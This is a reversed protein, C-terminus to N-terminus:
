IGEGERFFFAGASAGVGLAIGLIVAAAFGFRRKMWAEQHNYNYWLRRDPLSPHSRSKALVYVCFPLGM